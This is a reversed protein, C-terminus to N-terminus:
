GLGHDDGRESEEGDGCGFRDHCRSFLELAFAAREEEGALVVADSGLAQQPWEMAVFECCPMLLEFSQGQRLAIVRRRCPEGPTPAESVVAQFDCLLQRRGHRDCWLIGDTTLGYIDGHPLVELIACPCGKVPLRNVTIRASQQHHYNAGNRADDRAPGNSISIM